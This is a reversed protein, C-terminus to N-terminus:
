LSEIWQNIADTNKYLVNLHGGDLEQFKNKANEPLSEFIVEHSYIHTLRDGSGSLIFIPTKIDIANQQSDPYEDVSYHTCYYEATAYIKYTKGANMETFDDSEKGKGNATMECARAADDETHSRLRGANNPDHGPAVSVLGIVKSNVGKGGYQFVAMGGMSHGVVVVRSTDLSQVAVDILELSQERTGKYGLKESWPMLPAIVTYGLSRMNSIFEENHSIGPHGRKGHLFVIGVDKKEGKATYLWGETTHGSPTTLSITTHGAGFFGSLFVFSM